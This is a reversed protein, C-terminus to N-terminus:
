VKLCLWLLKLFFYITAKLDVDTETEKPHRLVSLTIIVSTSEETFIFESGFPDEYARTYFLM